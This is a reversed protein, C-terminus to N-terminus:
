HKDNYFDPKHNNFPLLSKKNKQVKIFSKLTYGISDETTILDDLYDWIQAPTTGTISSVKADLNTLILDLVSNPVIPNTTLYDWVDAATIGGGGSTLTRTSYAWFDAPTMEMTGVTNDTPVNLAVSSPPPVILEGELESAAGYLVGDRVDSTAPNGLPVGATYLTKNTGGIVQMTWMTTNNGLYLRTAFIAMVGNNNIVIGNVSIVTTAGTSYIANNSSSSNVTGNITITSANNGAEIGIGTNATINGIINLNAGALFQIGSALPGSGGNVNGIINITCMSQIRIGIGNGPGANIDGFHNLTVNATIYFCQHHTSSTNGYTNCIIGPTSFLLLVHGVPQAYFGISTVIDCNVIPLFTGGNTGGSRQSNRLSLVTVNQDITVTKGDAYVDDSAGPLAVGGDWTAVNSWNGNGVAYRTAM